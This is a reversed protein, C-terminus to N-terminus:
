FMFMSSFVTFTKWTEWSFGTRVVGNAGSRKNCTYSARVQRKRISLNQSSFERVCFPSSAKHPILWLIPFKKSHTSLRQHSQARAVTKVRKSNQRNGQLYICQRRSPTRHKFGAQVKTGQCKSLTVKEVKERYYGWYTGTTCSSKKKIKTSYWLFTKNGQPILLTDCSIVVKFTSIIHLTHTSREGSLPM